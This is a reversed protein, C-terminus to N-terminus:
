NLGKGSADLRPPVKTGSVDLRPPVKTGSADLRPPANNGSADLQPSLVNGPYYKLPAKPVPTSSELNAPMTDVEVAGDGDL